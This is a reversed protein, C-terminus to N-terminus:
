NTKQQPLNAFYTYYLLGNLFMLVGGIFFPTSLTIAEFMYGAMTPAASRAGMRAFNSVGIATATEKPNVLKTALSQRIPITFMLVVRLVILLISAFYYSGTTAFAMTVGVSVMRFTALAKVEGLRAIVHPILPYTFISFIRSIAYIPGLIDSGVGFSM